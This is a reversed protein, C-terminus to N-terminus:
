LREIDLNRECGPGFKEDTFQNYTKGSANEVVTELLLYPANHYYWQTGADAKYHLCAPETCDLDPVTYDLGTTM